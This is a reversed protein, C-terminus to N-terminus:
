SRFFCPINLYGGCKPHWISVNKKGPNKWFLLEGNVAELKRKLPYAFTKSIKSHEWSWSQPLQALQQSVQLTARHGKKKSTEAASVRFGNEGTSKKKRLGPVSLASLNVMLDSTFSTEVRPSMQGTWSILGMKLAEFDSELMNSTIKSPNGEFHLAM